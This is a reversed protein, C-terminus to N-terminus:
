TEPTRSDAEPPPAATQALAYAIVDAYSMASGEAWRQRLRDDGLAATLERTTERRLEGLYSLSAERSPMPTSASSSSIEADTTDFRGRRYAFGQIVAAADPRTAVLARATLNLVLVLWGGEEGVRQLHRLARRAIELTATPTAVKATLAVASGLHNINEYGLADIRDLSEGLCARAEEPASDAITIGAVLLSTTVAYPMGVEHALTLSERAYSRAGAADGALTQSWAAFALTVSRVLRNGQAQSIDAAKRYLDSADTFAGRVMACDARAQCVLNEVDPDTQEHVRRDADLAAVCRQEALEISGRSAADVATIALALPYAPHESADRLTLAAGGMLGLQYGGEHGRPANCLIRFALDVDNTDIAFNWATLLNDHERDLRGAWRVHDPGHLHGFCEEAYATFYEAHRAQLADTERTEELREEGYQRITELLRYRTHTGHEEAVVLSRSVLNAVHEFVLDRDIGDGACVTEAAEVTFGGSFVALRALLRREPEDLLDYSWDIAARLTQHREVAGRRGGALMQFRRDLREALEGPTMAAVRAAALELALPVGDLRRCVKAVAAANEESLEFGSHVAAARDLFLRVADTSGIADLSAEEPPASLSPVAVIREGDVGLGERSTTLVVLDPASRQLTEVLHASPQLLHECNDLVLLPQKRRLADILADEVTQHEGATVSFLAAVADAVGAPDRVPALECWWVGDRFTSAVERAVQLALRTKGVGGVGTLTVLRAEDLSRAVQAAERARGVFSSAPTPLRGERRDVGRLSGFSAVLDPHTVQFITEPRDLDRLQHEGLEQLGVDDPLADPVLAATAASCLIQGGHGASMIRAARNLVPGFYDDGRRQAEGTHLGMRVRLPGTAGWPEAVLVRQAAVAADLADGARRFIAVVGDGTAKFVQGERAEIAGHLLEDHRALADRMAAPHEDWLRTSGELDTMLFTVVGTPLETAAGGPPRWDLEPKQLVVAEELAVLEASPAIGLEEGLHDALERYARLADAQRGSRYLALIWHAWLHERLPHHRAAAELDTVVQTHHGLALEARLRDELAGVRLEELRASEPQAFEEYAFDVLAPGRWLGLAEGLSASATAPDGASIAARGDRVLAEFRSADFDAADVRVVYGPRQTVIVRAPHEADRDPELVKRLGSVYVQVSHAAGSPPEAGWLSDILQEAPVVENAHILLLALLARQRAAGLAVPAGGRTAELPGLLGFQLRPPPPGTAPAAPKAPAAEGRGTVVAGPSAPAGAAPILPEQAAAETPRSSRPAGELHM